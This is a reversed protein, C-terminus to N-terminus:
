AKITKMLDAQPNRIQSGAASWSIPFYLLLPTLVKESGLRSTWLLKRWESFSQMYVDDRYAWPSYIYAYLDAIGWTHSRLFSSLLFSFCKPPPSLPHQQDLTSNISHSFLCFVAMSLLITFIFLVCQTSVSIIHDFQKMKHLGGSIPHVNQNKWVPSWPYWPFHLVSTLSSLRMHGMDPNKM